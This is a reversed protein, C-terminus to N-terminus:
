RSARVLGKHFNGTTGRIYEGTYFSTSELPSMILPAPCFILFLKFYGFNLYRLRGAAIISHSNRVRTSDCLLHEQLTFQMLQVTSPSSAVTVLSLYSPPLTNLGPVSELDLDPSGIEIEVALVHGLEEVRLRRELYLVQLLVKM